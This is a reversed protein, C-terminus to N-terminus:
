SISSHHILLISYSNLMPPFYLREWTSHASFNPLNDWHFMQRQWYNSICKSPCHFNYGFEALVTPIRNQSLTSARSRNGRSDCIAASELSLASRGVWDSHGIAALLRYIMWLGTVDQIFIKARGFCVTDNNFSVYKALYLFSFIEM